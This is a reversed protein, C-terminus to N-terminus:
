KDQSNDTKKESLSLRLKVAIIVYYVWGYNFNFLNSDTINIMLLLIYFLLPFFSGDGAPNRTLYVVSKFATNIFSIGYLVLGVLGLQLILDYWGQHAHPPVWGWVTQIGDAPSEAGRWPQWFGVVGYGFLPRLKMREIMQPWVEGRGSFNSNKGMAAYIAQENEKFLIFVAIAIVMFIFVCSFGLRPPLHRILRLVVLMAMCTMWSLFAGSSNAMQMTLFSFVIIVLSLQRQKPNYIANVSWMAMNLAMLNGLYIPHGLVGRWGKGIRGSSSGLSYFISTVMVVANTRRITKAIDDMSYKTAIHACIVALGLFALSTRFTLIPTESWFASLMFYICFLGLFPDKVLLILLSNPLIKRFWSKLVFVACLYIALTLGVLAISRDHISFSRPNLLNFPPVGVGNMMYMLTHLFLSELIPALKKNSAMHFALLLCVVGLPILVCLVIPEFLLKKM